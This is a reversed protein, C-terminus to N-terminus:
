KINENAYKTVEEGGAANWEEVFKDFDEVPRKGTIIDTAYEKYLNEMADWNTVFEDPIIFNNDESYFQNVLNESDAGPKGLLPTKLANTPNFDPTEFFRSYWEAYYKDTLETQGDVLNFHEGEFGLRDFEQGKESALFDLIEFAVDKNESQSSIALGRSEKTIDTPSYGQFEGKAPPLVVLEAGAGNVQTMKGNYIDIIKGNTGTIVATEGDYFSKEKTDWQKTIYQPDLIGENYLKNYFALKEKEQNSVKSYIYNGDSEKLWTQNIGFAMNFIYNIETIDGAATLGYAPKGAGGPPNTVLEKLFAYYNDVTPDAMLAESTSMQDFWDKRISPTKDNLPKVWLLYPYNALRKENHPQLVNKLNESKEIYPTLDELIGQESMQIDGGQFYILDPIDGSSLLLNLKEAYNGQPLEVLEINVELDNEAKLLKELEDFYKVAVPNSPGEDKYVVRITTPGDKKETDEQKTTDKSCAFLAFSLVLTLCLLLMKKM